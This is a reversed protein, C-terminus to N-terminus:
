SPACVALGRSQKPNLKSVPRSRRSRPGSGTSSAAPQAAL